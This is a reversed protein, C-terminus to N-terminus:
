GALGLLRETLRTRWLGWLGFAWLAVAGGIAACASPQLLVLEFFTRLTPVALILTYFGVIGVALLTPRLRARM